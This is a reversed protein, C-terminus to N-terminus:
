HSPQVPPPPAPIEDILPPEGAACRWELEMPCWIGLTIFSLFVYGFNTSATVEYLAHNQPPAHPNSADHLQCETAVPQDDQVIGWFYSNVTTKGEKGAPNAPGPASVRYHYCGTTAALALVLGMACPRIALEKM